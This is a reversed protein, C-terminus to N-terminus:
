PCLIEEFRKIIKKAQGEFVAYRYVDLFKGNLKAENKLVGERRIKYAKFCSALKKNRILTEFSMKKLSLDEFLHKMTQYVAELALHQGEFKKDVLIAFHASQIVPKIEFIMVMGAIEGELTHIMFLMGNRIQSFSKFYDANPAPQIDRFFEEYDGSYYWEYLHAWQEPEYPLLKTKQGPKLM